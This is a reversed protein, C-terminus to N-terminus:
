DFLCQITEATKSAHFSSQAVLPVKGFMGSVLGKTRDLFGLGEDDFDELEHHLIHATTYAIRQTPWYPKDLSLAYLRDNVLRHSRPLFLREDSKMEELLQISGRGDRHRAGIQIDMPMVPKGMSLMKDAIQYTGSGGGIAIMADCHEAQWDRYEGGSYLSEEIHRVDIAGKVQLRQILRANESTFRKKMSDIGMFVRAFCFSAKDARRELHSDVARLVEWDFSLPVTRGGEDRIPERTALVAVSNGSEIIEETVARAFETARALRSSDCCRDASGVILVCKPPM